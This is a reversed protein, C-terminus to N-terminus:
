TRARVPYTVFEGTLGSVKLMNKRQSYFKMAEDETDFEHSELESTTPACNEDCEHGYDDCRFTSLATNNQCIKVVFKGGYNMRDTVLANLLKSHAEAFNIESSKLKVEPTHKNGVHIVLSDVTSAVFDCHVCKLDTVSYSPAQVVPEPQASISKFVREFLELATAERMEKAAPGNIKMVEHAFFDRLEKVLAEMIVPEDEKSLGGEIFKKFGVQIAEQITKSAM